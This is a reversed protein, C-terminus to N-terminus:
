KLSLLYIDHRSWDFMDYIWNDKTCVWQTLSNNYYTYPLKTLKKRWHWLFISQIKTKNINKTYLVQRWETRIHSTLIKYWQDLLVKHLMDYIDEWLTWLVWIRYIRDIHLYMEWKDDYMIRALSRWSFKNWIYMKIVCMGWNYYMDHYWIAHWCCNEPKQCSGNFWSYNFIEEKDEIRNSIIVKVDINPLYEKPDASVWCYKVFSLVTEKKNKEEWFTDLYKYTVYQWDCKFDYVNRYKNMTEWFLLERDKQSLDKYLRLVKERSEKNDFSFVTESYIDVDHKFYETFDKDSINDNRKYFDLLKERVSEKYKYKKMKPIGIDESTKSISQLWWNSSSEWGVSKAISEFVSKM